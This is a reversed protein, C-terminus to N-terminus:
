ENRLLYNLEDIRRQTTANMCDLYYIGLYHGNVGESILKSQFRRNELWKDHFVLIKTKVSDEVITSLYTVLLHNMSADVEQFKLNLCIKVELSSADEKGCDVTSVSNMYSLNKLRYVDLTDQSYGTFCILFLIILAFQRLMDLLEGNVLM